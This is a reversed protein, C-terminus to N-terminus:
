PKPTLYDNKNLALGAEILGFVDFHCKFLLQAYGFYQEFPIYYFFPQDIDSSVEISAEDTIFYSLDNNNIEQSMKGLESLPILLPMWERHLLPYNFWDDLFGGSLTFTSNGEKIRLDYPLYPSLHELELKM